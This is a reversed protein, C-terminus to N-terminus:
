AGWRLLSPRMDESPPEYLLTFQMIYKTGATVAGGSHLVTGQRHVSACGPPPKVALAPAGVESNHGPLYHTEGGEFSDTLYVVATFETVCGKYPGEEENLINGDFHPAFYQGEAYRTVLFQPNIGCFKRGDVLQLPAQEQMRERMREAFEADIVLRTASHRRAGTQMRERGKKGTKFIFDGTELEIEEARQIWQACEEASLLPSTTWVAWPSRVDTNGDQNFGEGGPVLNV